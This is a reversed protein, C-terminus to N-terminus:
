DEDFFGPDTKGELQKQVQMQIDRSIDWMEGPKPVSMDAIVKLSEETIPTLCYIACPNYYKTVPLKTDPDIADVRLLGMTSKSVMGSIKSHGMLEVIAPGEYFEEM